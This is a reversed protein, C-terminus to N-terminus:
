HGMPPLALHLVGEDFFEQPPAAIWMGLFGGLGYHWLRVLGARRFALYALPGVVLALPYTFIIFELGGVALGLRRLCELLVGPVLPAAFFGVITQM